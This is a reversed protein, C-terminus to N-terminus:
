NFQFLQKRNQETIILPLYMNAVVIRYQGGINRSNKIVVLFFTAYNKMCM